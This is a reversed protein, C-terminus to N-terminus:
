VIKKEWGFGGAQSLMMIDKGHASRNRSGVSERRTSNVFGTRRMIRLFTVIVVAIAAGGEVSTAAAPGMVSCIDVGALLEL